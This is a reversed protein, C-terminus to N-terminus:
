KSSSPHFIESLYEIGEIIRPGPYCLMECDITHVAGNEIATIGKWSDKSLLSEPRRICLPDPSQCFACRRKPDEGKLVGCSIIYAPDFAKVEEKTVVNYPDGRDIPMPQGGALMIADSQYSNNGTTVLPDETLLRFAKPRPLNQVRSVVRQLRKRLQKVRAEAEKGGEGMQVIKDTTKLIGFVTSAELMLVSKSALALGKLYRDHIRGIGLVLDPKLENIKEMDPRSFYGVKALGNNEGSCKCNNTCGILRDELGLYCLTNTFSPALSIIRMAPGETNGLLKFEKKMNQKRGNKITAKKM